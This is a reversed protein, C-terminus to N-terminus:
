NGGGGSQQLCIPNQGAAEAAHGEAREVGCRSGGGARVRVRVRADTPTRSEHSKRGPAAGSIHERAHVNHVNAAFNIFNIGGSKTQGLTVISIVTVIGPRPTSITAMYVVKAVNTGEVPRTAV